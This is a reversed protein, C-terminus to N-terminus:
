RNNLPLKSAAQPPVSLKINFLIPVHNCCGAPVDCNTSLLICVCLLFCCWRYRFSSCVVVLLPKCQARLVPRALLLPLKCGQWM